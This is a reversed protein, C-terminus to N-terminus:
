EKLDLASGPSWKSTIAQSSAVFGLKLCGYFQETHCFWWDFVVSFECFSHISHLKVMQQRFSGCLQCSFNTEFNDCNLYPFLSFLGNAYGHLRLNSCRPLNTTSNKQIWWRRWWWDVRVRAWALQTEAWKVEGWSSARSIGFDGGDWMIALSIFSYGSEVIICRACSMDGCVHYKRAVLWGWCLPVSNWCVCFLLKTWCRRAVAYHALFNDWSSGGRPALGGARLYRLLEDLM